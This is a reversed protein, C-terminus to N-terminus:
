AHAEDNVDNKTPGFGKATRNFDKREEEQSKRKILGIEFAAAIKTLPKEAAEKLKRADFRPSYLLIPLRNVFSPVVVQEDKSSKKKEPDKKNSNIQHMIKDKTSFMQFLLADWMKLAKPGEKNQAVEQNVDQVAPPMGDTGSSTVQPKDVTDPFRPEEPEVVMHKKLRTWGSLKGKLGKPKQTPKQETSSTSTGEPELKKKTISSATSTMSKMFSEVAPAKKPTSIAKLIDKGKLGTKLQSSPSTGRNPPPVKVSVSAQNQYYLHLISSHFTLSWGM